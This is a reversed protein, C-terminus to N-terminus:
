IIVFNKSKVSEHSFAGVAMDTENLYLHLSLSIPLYLSPSVSGRCDRKRQPGEM